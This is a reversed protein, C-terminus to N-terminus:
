EKIIKYSKNNGTADTVKVLYVGNPYNTLNIKESNLVNNRFLIMKGMVDFVQITVEEKVEINLITHTPNPYITIHDELKQSVTALTTCDSTTITLNNTWGTCPPLPTDNSNIGIINDNIGNFEAPGCEESLYMVCYASRMKWQNNEWVIESFPSAAGSCTAQTINTACYYNDTKYHPKGNVQDVYYFIANFGGSVYIPAQLPTISCGSGTVYSYSNYVYFLNYNLSNTALNEIQNGNFGDFNFYSVLGPENRAVCSAYNNAIESATRATSWIRFNDYKANGVNTWSYSSNAGLNLRNQNYFGELTTTFNYDVMPIGNVYVKVNKAADNTVVLAIHYWQQVNFTPMGPIVEESYGNGLSLISAGTDNVYFHIPKAYLGSDALSSIRANFNTLANLYFDYEITFSSENLYYDSYNINNVNYCSFYSDNSMQLANNQANTIGFLLSLLLTSFYKQKM